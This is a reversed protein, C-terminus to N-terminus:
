EEELERNDAAQFVDGYQRGLPRRRLSDRATELKRRANTLDSLATSTDGTRVAVLADNAIIVAELINEYTIITDKNM